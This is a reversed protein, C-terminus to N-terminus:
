SYINMFLISRVKKKDDPKPFLMVNAELEMRYVILVAARAKQNM